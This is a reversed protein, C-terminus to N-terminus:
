IYVRIHIYMCIYAYTYNCITNLHTCVCVCQYLICMYTYLPKTISDAWRRREIGWSRKPRAVITPSQYKWEVDVVVDGDGNGKGAWRRTRPQLQRKGQRQGYPRRLSEDGEKAKWDCHRKRENERESVSVRQLSYTHGAHRLARSLKTCVWRSKTLNTGNMRKTESQKAKTEDTKNRENTRRENHKM